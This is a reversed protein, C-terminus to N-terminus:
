GMEDVPKGESKDSVVLGPKFLELVEVIGDAEDVAARARRLIDGGWQSPYPHGKNDIADCLGWRDGRKLAVEHADLILRYAQLLEKNM